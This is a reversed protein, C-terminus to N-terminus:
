SSGTARRKPGKGIIACIFNFLTERLQDESEWLIHNYQRTDFHVNGLDGKKCTWLVPMGLGLAYEAEFYVGQRQDTVDAVLFRSDKIDTMITVDIRDAHPESDVRYPNYGANEIAKKISNEWLATLEPSFSMAVFVPDSISSKQTNKELFDWGAATIEIQNILENLVKNKESPLRILGREVLSQLYYLWEKENKAWSLPYDVGPSITVSKGPYETRREINRLLFLMKQAPGYDSLNAEVNKLV